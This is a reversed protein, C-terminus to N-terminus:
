SCRTTKGRSRRCWAWIWLFGCSGACASLPAWSPFTERKSDHLM